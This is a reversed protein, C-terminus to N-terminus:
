RFQTTRHLALGCIMLLVLSAACLLLAPPWNLAITPLRAISAFFLFVATAVAVLLWDWATRAPKAESETRRGDM